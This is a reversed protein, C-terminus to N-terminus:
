VGELNSSYWEISRRIGEELDIKPEYGLVSQARDISPVRIEVEPGPHPKHVIQSHSNTFRIIINALNINAATGLPNGLNFVKGKAEAKELCLMIGDVFDDVYCWARIQTGGGYLTIPAGRLASLIMERIAGEGIQRPGYVNFPRVTIVPLGFEEYFSHSLHEAALKSVAYTWRREGIPGQTTLATETGKYVHPGYVESTSFDIFLEVKNDVAAELANHTGLLNVKITMTPRKGVSYIGAIAACHIVISAGKTAEAVASADLVDGQVFRLNEHSLSKTFKIANRQLNDFVTIKNSDILREIIHSAIFGAGGTILIKKGTIM